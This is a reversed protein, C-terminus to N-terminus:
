KAMKGAVVMRRIDRSIGAKALWQQKAKRLESASWGAQIHLKIADKKLIQNALSEMTAKVEEGVIRIAEYPEGKAQTMVKEAKERPMSFESMLIRLNREWASVDPEDSIMEPIMGDEENFTTKTKDKKSKKEKKSGKDVAKEAYEGIIQNVVEKPLSVSDADESRSKKKEKQSGKDVVRKAYEGIIQHVVVNPLSPLDSSEAFGSRPSHPISRTREIDASDESIGEIFEEPYCESKRAPLPEFYKCFGRFESWAQYDKLGEKQYLEEAKVNNLFKWPNRRRSREYHLEVDEFEWRVQLHSKLMQVTM